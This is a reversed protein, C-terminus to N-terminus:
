EKEGGDTAVRPSLGFDRPEHEKLHDEVAPVNEHAPHRHPNVPEDCAPCAILCVRKDRGDNQLVISYDRMEDLKM